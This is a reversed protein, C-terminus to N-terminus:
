EGNIFISRITRLGSACIGTRESLSREGRSSISLFLFSFFGKCAYISQVQLVSVHKFNNRTEQKGM